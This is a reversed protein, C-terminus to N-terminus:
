RKDRFNKNVFIASIILNVVLVGGGCAMYFARWPQGDQKYVFYTIATAIIVLIIIIFLVKM